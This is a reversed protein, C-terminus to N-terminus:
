LDSMWGFKFFTVIAQNPSMNMITVQYVTTDLATVSYGIGNPLYGTNGVHTEFFKQTHLYSDGSSVDEILVYWADTGVDIVFGTNDYQELVEIGKRKFGAVDLQITNTDQLSFSVDATGKPALSIRGQNNPVANNIRQVGSAPFTGTKARQHTSDWVLPNGNTMNAAEDRTLLPQESGTDGVRATGTSDVGFHLDNTGDYKTIKLGSESGSPIATVANERLIIEDKEVYLKEAHTEYAAGNQLIDGNVELTGDVQLGGSAVIKQLFTKVGDINQDGTVAVFENPLGNTLWDEIRDLTVQHRVLWAIVDRNDYAEVLSIRQLPM